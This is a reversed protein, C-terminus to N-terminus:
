HKLVTPTIMRPHSYYRCERPPQLEMVRTSINERKFGAQVLPGVQTEEFVAGEGDGIGAEGGGAKTKPTGPGEQESQPNWEGNREIQPGLGAGRRM